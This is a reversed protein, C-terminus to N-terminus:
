AAESAKKAKYAGTKLATSVKNETWDFHEKLAEEYIDFTNRICGLFKDAVQLGVKLNTNVIDEPSTLRPLTQVYKFTEGALETCFNVYERSAAEATKRQIEGLEQLPASWSTWDNFQNHQQNM